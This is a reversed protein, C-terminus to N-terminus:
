EIATLTVSTISNILVGQYVWCSLGGPSSPPFYSPSPSSSALLLTVDGIKFPFICGIGGCAIVVTVTVTATEGVQYRGKWRHLVRFTLNQVYWLPPGIYGPFVSDVAPVAPHQEVAIVEGQLAITAEAIRGELYKDGGFLTASGDCQTTATSAYSNGALLALSLALSRKM